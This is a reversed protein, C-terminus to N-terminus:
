RLRLLIEYHAEKAEFYDKSFNIAKEQDYWKCSFIDIYAANVDEAFHVTISSTEVFQIATYGELDGSGFREVMPEGYRKMDILDTLEILYRKIREVDRIYDPNTERLNLVLHLGWAGYHNYEEQSVFSPLNLISNRKMPKTLADM